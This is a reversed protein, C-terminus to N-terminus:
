KQTPSSEQNSIGGNDRDAKGAAGSKARDQSSTSSREGTTTRDAPQRESATRAEGGSLQTAIDTAHKLHEELKPLCKSAYQKVQDNQANRSQYSFELVNMTHGAVQGNVYKRDFDASAPCKQMKALKAQHIRDLQEQSVDVGAGQAIQKLEENAQTHDEILKQALRKIQQDRVKQQALQAAKVEFLNSNWAEKIFAKTPDTEIAEEREGAARARDEGRAASTGARDQASSSSSQDNAANRDSAAAPQDQGSKQQRDQDEALARVAFCALAITLTLAISRIMPDGEKFDATQPYSLSVGPPRTLEVAM